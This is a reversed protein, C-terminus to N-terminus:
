ARLVMQHLHPPFQARAAVKGHIPAVGSWPYFAHFRQPSEVGKRPQFDRLAILVEHAVQQDFLLNEHHVAAPKPLRWLRTMEANDEQRVLRRERASVCSDSVENTFAVRSSARRQALFSM